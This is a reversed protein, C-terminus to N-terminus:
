AEGKVRALLQRALEDYLDQQAKGLNNACALLAFLERKEPLPMPDPKPASPAILKRRYECSMDPLMKGSIGCAEWPESNGKGRWEDTPLIEDGEKLYYYGDSPEPSEVAIKRRYRCQTMHNEGVKEGAYRTPRFTGDIGMRVEDGEELVESDDLWRYGEGPSPEQAITDDPKIRRRYRMIVGVAGGLTSNAARWELGNWYEDGDQIIDGAKLDQYTM